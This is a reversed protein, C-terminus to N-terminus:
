RTGCVPGRSGDDVDGDTDPTSFGMGPMSPVVVHFADEARGGYLEPDTLPEIVDLFDVFSGPYTHTLVIPTANEHRSRVHIFHITQGDIETLFQPFENM